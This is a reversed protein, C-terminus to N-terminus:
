SAGGREALKRQLAAARLDALSMRKVPVRSPPPASPPPLSLPPRTRKVARQAARRTRAAEWQKATRAAKVAALRQRANAMDASTVTGAPIGQLDIRPTGECCARLYGENGCYLRLAAKLERVTIAGATATILDRDIGLKLPRRRREYVTFAAPFWEALIAITETAQEIKRSRTSPEAFQSSSQRAEGDGAAPNTSEHTM